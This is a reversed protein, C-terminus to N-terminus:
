AAENREDVINVLVCLNITDKDLSLRLMLPKTESAYITIKDALQASSVAKLNDVKVQTIFSDDGSLSSEFKVAKPNRIINFSKIKKSSTAYQMLLPSNCDDQRFTITDSFNRVDSILKKFYKGPLELKITYGLDDFKKENEVKSYEGILEIKHTEDIEIENNFMISINKQEYGVKSLFLISTYTKDITSMVLEPNKNNMGIDLEGSCFYHNIKNANIKVRVHSQKHHDECWIIIETKRFIIQINVASMLKFYQWLKKFISAKEYLFEVYNSPDRPAKVIGNRPRPERIPTKRPRGPRKKLVKEKKDKTTKTSAPEVVSDKKSTTCEVDDM